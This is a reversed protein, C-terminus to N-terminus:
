SGNDAIGEPQDLYSHAIRARGNILLKCERLAVDATESGFDLRVWLVHRARQKNWCQETLRLKIVALGAAGAM